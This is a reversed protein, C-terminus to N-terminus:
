ISFLGYKMLDYLGVTKVLQGVTEADMVETVTFTVLYSGTLTNRMVINLLFLWREDQTYWIARVNRILSKM